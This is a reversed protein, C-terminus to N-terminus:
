NFYLRNSENKGMMKFKRNKEIESIRFNSFSWFYFENIKSRKCDANLFSIRIRFKNSENWGFWHTKEIWKSTTVRFFILSCWGLQKLHISNLQNNYTTSYINVFVDECWFSALCYATHIPIFHTVQEVDYMSMHTCLNFLTFIHSFCLSTTVVTTRCVFVFERVFSRVFSPIMCCVCVWMSGGCAFLVVYAGSLSSVFNYMTRSYYVHISDRRQESM